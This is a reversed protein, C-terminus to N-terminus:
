HFTCAFPRGIEPLAEHRLPTEDATPAWPTLHRVVRGVPNNDLPEGFLALGDPKLVRRLEALARPLYLHHLIGSGFAVDFYNDPFDLRHADMVHFEPQLTDPRALARGTETQAHSINICHLEAPKLGNRNLFPYWISSGLELAAGIPRRGLIGGARRDRQRAALYDTHHLVDAYRRRELGEEYARKERLTRETIEGNRAEATNRRMWM